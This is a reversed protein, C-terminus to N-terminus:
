EEEKPKTEINFQAIASTMNPQLLRLDELDGKHLSINHGIFRCYKRERKVQYTYLWEKFKKKDVNAIDLHENIKACVADLEEEPTITEAPSKETGPFEMEEQKGEKVDGGPTLGFEEGKDAREEGKKAVKLGVEDLKEGVKKYDDPKEEDEKEEEPKFTIPKSEEEGKEIYETDQMEEKAYLGLVADPAIQRIGKSACRAFLMEKPYNKWSTKGLLGANSADKRTFEVKLPKKWGERHFIMICEDETLKEIEWTVKARRTAIALMAKAEMSLRGNIVCMTNLSAVPPLGLEKGYAVVTVIEPVSKYQRFMGSELLSQSLKYINSADPILNVSEHRVITTKLQKKNNTKV